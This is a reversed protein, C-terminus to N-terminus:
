RLDVEHDRDGHGLGRSGIAVFRQGFIADDGVVVVFRAELSSPREEVEDVIWIHASVEPRILSM